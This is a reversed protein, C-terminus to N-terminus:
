RVVLRPLVQTDMTVEYGAAKLHEAYRALADMQDVRQQDRKGSYSGETQHTVETAGSRLAKAVFGSTTSRYGKVQSGSSTSRQFANGLHRSITATNTM